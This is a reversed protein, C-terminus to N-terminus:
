DGLLGLEEDVYPDTAGAADLEAKLARQIARAEDDRGQLRLVWAVMWRAVRIDAPVGIRVRASLADEFTELAGDLNGAEVRMMGLNTLLSADWNRAREDDSVAALALARETIAVAEDPEAVLAQMHLADLHLADLGAAEALEAAEDFEPRATVPDGASRHLRGRELHLRVRTEEDVPGAAVEHLLEHAADYSGQLGLARAVQTLMVPREDGTAAARFRRESAAPDDFDWLDALDTMGEDHRVRARWL